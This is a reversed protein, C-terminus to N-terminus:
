QTNLEFLTLIEEPTVRSDLQSELYSTNKNRLLRLKQHTAPILVNLDAIRQCSVSTELLLLYHQILKEYARLIRKKAKYDIDTSTFVNFTTETYLSYLAEKEQPLSDFIQLLTIADDLCAINKEAMTLREVVSLSDNYAMLHLQFFRNISDLAPKYSQPLKQSSSDILVEFIEQRASIKELLESLFKNRQWKTKLQQIREEFRQLDDLSAKTLTSYYALDLQSPTNISDKLELNQLLFRVLKDKQFYPLKNNTNLQKLWSLQSFFTNNIQNVSDLYKKARPYSATFGELREYKAAKQILSQMQKQQELLVQLSNKESKTLPHYAIKFLLSNASYPIDLTDLIGIRESEITHFKRLLAVFSYVIMDLDQTSFHVELIDEAYPQTLNLTRYEINPKTTSDLLYEATSQQNSIKLLQGESFEFLSTVSDRKDYLTWTNAAFDDNNISGILALNKTSIELQKPATKSPLPKVTCSLVTDSEKDSLQYQHYSFNANVKNQDIITKLSRYYSQTAIKLQNNKFITKGLSDIEIFQFRWEGQPKNNQFTGNFHYFNRQSPTYSPNIPGALEFPGTLVTDTGDLIFDFEAYGRYGNWNIEATNTNTQSFLATSLCFLLGLFLRHTLNLPHM